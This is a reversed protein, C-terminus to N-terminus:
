VSIEQITSIHATVQKKLLFISDRVTKKTFIISGAARSLATATTLM